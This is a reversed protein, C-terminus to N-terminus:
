IKFLRRSHYTMNLDGPHDYDPYRVFVDVIINLPSGVTTAITSLERACNGQLSSVLSIPNTNGIYSIEVNINYGDAGGLNGTITDLCNGNSHENATVAMIAYEMYSSALLAAQERQFQTTTEKVMKGSTTLIFSAVTAMLVIVIIATIMSFGKRQRQWKM